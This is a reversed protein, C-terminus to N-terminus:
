ATGTGIAGSSNDGSPIGQGGKKAAPLTLTPQGSSAGAAAAADSSSSLSADLGRMASMIDDETTSSLVLLLVLSLSSAQVAAAAVTATAAAATGKTFSSFSLQQAPRKSGRAELGSGNGSSSIANNVADAQREDLPEEEGGESRRSASVATATTAIAAARVKTGEAGKGATLGYGEGSAQRAQRFAREDGAISSTLTERGRGPTHTQRPFPAQLFAETFVFG